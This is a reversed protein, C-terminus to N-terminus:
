SVIAVFFWLGFMSLALAVLVLVILGLVADGLFELRENHRSGASRHTLADDLLSADRLEYGLRACLQARASCLRHLLQRHGEVALAHPHAAAM